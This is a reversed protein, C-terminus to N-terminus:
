LKIQSVIPNTTTITHKTDAELLIAQHIAGEAVMDAVRLILQVKRDNEIRGIEDLILLRFTGKNALALGFAAMGILEETGSFSRWPIWSGVASTRGERIDADTVRRGLDGDVFELPSNLLGDTLRNATKLLDAFATESWRKMESLLLKKAATKVEIECWLKGIEDSKATRRQVLSDFESRAQAQREALELATTNISLEALEKNLEEIRQADSTRETSQVAELESLQMTLRNEEHNARSLEQCANEWEALIQAEKEEREELQSERESAADWDTNLKAEAAEIQKIRELFGERAKDLNAHMGCTPCITVGDLSALQRKVTELEVAVKQSEAAIETTAQKAKALEDAIGSDAPKPGPDHIAQLNVRAQELQAKVTAIKGALGADKQQRALIARLEGQKGILVDRKRRLETTDPPVPPHNLPLTMGVFAGSAKKHEANLVKLEDAWNDAVKQIETRWDGSDLATAIEKIAQGQFEVALNAPHAEIQNIKEALPQMDPKGGGAVRFVTAVRDAATLAFFGRVDMLMPDLAVAVPTNVDVSCSKKNKDLAFKAELDSNFKVSCSVSGESDGSIAAWLDGAKKNVGPLYGAMSLRICDATTTKGAFNSGTIITVPTLNREFTQGKVGRNIVKTIHM